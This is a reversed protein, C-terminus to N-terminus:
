DVLIDQHLFFMGPVIMTPNAESGKVWNYSGIYQLNEVKVDGPPLTKGKPVKLTQSPVPLLGDTIDRDGPRDAARQTRWSQSFNSPRGRGRYSSM